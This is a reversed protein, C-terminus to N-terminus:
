PPPGSCSLGIDGGPKDMLRHFVSVPRIHNRQFIKQGAQLCPINGPMRHFSVFPDRLCLQQGNVIVERINIEPNFNTAFAYGHDGGNCDLIDITDIQDFEHKLAYACYAQTVGPDFGCGLLATLGADEFKKRYAWQWSYDFYASFGEEKCRKEYIARWEPDDTDEPEYNATDMYNVGCALCADMITLDQYPLAINMVLDPKYSNILEILQDVDDADVKATTLVTKTKGKLKEVLADCKEKTRSAICMETFVEDVQCCKQIAVSAVGGCGIVLVRSM